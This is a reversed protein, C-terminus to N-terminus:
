RACPKVQARRTWQRFALYGVILGAAATMLPIRYQKASSAGKALQDKGAGGVSIAKHRAAEAQGTVKSRVNEASAAANKRAQLTTSKVRESVEAAMARAMSRPSARAVLEQVTEGLQERTQEIERELQKPDVTAAKGDAQPATDATGPPLESSPSTEAQAPRGTGESTTM